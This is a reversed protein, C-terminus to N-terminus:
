KLWAMRSREVHFVADPMVRFVIVVVRDGDRVVDEAQCRTIKRMLGAGGTGNGHGRAGGGEDAVEIVEAVGDSGEVKEFGM